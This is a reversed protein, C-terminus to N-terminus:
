QNIWSAFQPAIRQEAFDAAAAHTRYQAPVIGIQIALERELHQELTM